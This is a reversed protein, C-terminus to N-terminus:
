YVESFVTPFKAHKMVKEIEGQFYKEKRIHPDASEKSRLM